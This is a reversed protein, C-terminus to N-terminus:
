ISRLSIISLEPRNGVHALMHLHEAHQGVGVNITDLIMSGTKFRLIQSRLRLTSDNDAFLNLSRVSMGSPSLFDNVMNSNGGVVSLEFPPM